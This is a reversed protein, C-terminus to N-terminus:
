QWVNGGSAVWHAGCGVRPRERGKGDRPPTDERGKVGGFTYRGRLRPTASDLYGGQGDCVIARVQKKHPPYFM